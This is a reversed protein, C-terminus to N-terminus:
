MVHKLNTLYNDSKPIEDVDLKILTSFHNFLYNTMGYAIIFANRCIVPGNPYLKLEFKLYSGASKGVVCYRIRHYIVNNREFNNILSFNKSLNFILQGISITLLQGELPLSIQKRLKQTTIELYRNQYECNCDNDAVFAAEKRM